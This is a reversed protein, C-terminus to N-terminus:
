KGICFEGFIVDLLDEVDIRGTIRGLARAALRLDEGLLEMDGHPDTAGLVRALAHRCEVLALRHRQRTPAPGSAHNLQGAVREQLAALLADMGSGTKVSVEFVPRGELEKPFPLTALDSKNLVILTHDDILGESIDDPVGEMRLDSGDLVLLKLDAAAAHHLARRVGENEIADGSRRLGATDAVNLPYGGLDLHVEIVDRTTGALDSVIAADRRALLNLLSSKGANPPGVIALHLGQRLREGRRGDALHDEIEGDLAAAAALVQDTLGTPLQEDSFDIEAEILALARLLRARWGDYLRGLEGGHQRRAQKRQAETEAEILDAMGEAETLDLKGNEFARRSFEGAEAPRLGPIDALAANLAAIVAPGGHIHLEVVDEGTFSAPGPFWLALGDDLVLDCGPKFFRARRAERPPPLERNTLAALADGAGPGSLRLVAVGARGAGSALAYITDSPDAGPTVHTM